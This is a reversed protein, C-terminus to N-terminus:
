FKGGPVSSTLFGLYSLSCFVYSWLSESCILPLLLHLKMKAEGADKQKVVKHLKTSSKVLSLWSISQKCKESSVIYDDILLMPMESM